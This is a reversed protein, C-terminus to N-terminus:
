AKALAAVVKDVIGKLCAFDDILIEELKKFNAMPSDKPYNFGEEFVEFHIEKGQLQSILNGLKNVFKNGQTELYRINTYFFVRQLFEKEAQTFNCVVESAKLMAEFSDFDQSQFPLRKFSFVLDFLNKLVRPAAKFLNQFHVSMENPLPYCSARYVLRDVSVAELNDYCQQSADDLKLMRVSDLIGKAQEVIRPHCPKNFEPAKKAPMSLMKLCDQLARDMENDRSIIRFTGRVLFDFPNRIATFSERFAQVLFNQGPTLFRKNQAFYAVSRSQIEVGNVLDIFRLDHNDFLNEPLVSELYDLNHTTEVKAVETKNQSKPLKQFYRAKMFQEVFLAAEDAIEALLPFLKKNEKEIMLRELLACLHFMHTEAENLHAKAKEPLKRKLNKFHIQLNEILKKIPNVSSAPPTLTVSSGATASSAHSTSSPERDVKATSASKLEKVESESAKCVYVRMNIGFASLDILVPAAHTSPKDGQPLTFRLGELDELQLGEGTAFLPLYFANYIDDMLSFRKIAFDLFNIHTAFTNDKMAAEYRINIPDDKTKLRKRLIEFEGLLFDNFSINKDNSKKAIWNSEMIKYDAEDYTIAMTEWCMFVDMMERFKRNRGFLFNIREFLLTYSNPLKRKVVNDTTNAADEINLIFTNYFRYLHSFLNKSSLKVRNKYDGTKVTLQAAEAMKANEEGIATMGHNWVEEYLENFGRLSVLFNKYGQSRYQEVMKGHSCDTMFNCLNRKLFNPYKFLSKLLDLCKLYDRMSSIKEQNTENKIKLNVGLEIASILKLMDGPDNNLLKKFAPAYKNIIAEYFKQKEKYCYSLSVFIFQQACHLPSLYAFSVDQKSVIRTFEKFVQYGFCDRMQQVREQNIPKNGMQSFVDFIKQRLDDPLCDKIQSFIKKASDIQGKEFEAIMINLQDAIISVM